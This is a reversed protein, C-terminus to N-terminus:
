ESDDLPSEEVEGTMWDIAAAVGQEFTMGPYLTKGEAVLEAVRDRIDEIQKQTPLKKITM